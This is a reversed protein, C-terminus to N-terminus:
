NWMNNICNQAPDLTFRRKVPVTIYTISAGLQEIKEVVTAMEFHLNLQQLILSYFIDLSLALKASNLLLAEMEDRLKGGGNVLKLYM